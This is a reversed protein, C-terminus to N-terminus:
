RLLVFRSTLTSKEAGFTASLLALYVGNSAFEGSSLKGNWIMSDNFGTYSTGSSTYITNGTIDFVKLSILSAVSCNFTFSINGSDPNYPSPCPNFDSLVLTGAVKFTIYYSGGLASVNITHSGAVLVPITIAGTLNNYLLPTTEDLVATAAAPIAGSPDTISVVPTSSCYESQALVRGDFYFVIHDPPALYHVSASKKGINGAQDQAVIDLANNGSNLKIPAFFQKGKVPFSAVFVNNNMVSIRKASEDNLTGSIQMTAEDTLTIPIASLEILPASTDVILAIEPIVDSNGCLDRLIGTITYLGESLDTHPTFIVQSLEKRYTLTGEISVENRKIVIQCKDADIGSGSDSISLIVASIDKSYLKNFSDEIIIKPAVSDLNLAQRLVGTNGTIDTACIELVNEAKVSVPCKIIGTIKKSATDYSLEGEATAGNIRFSIETNEDLNDKRDTVIAEVAFLAGPRIWDKEKPKTLVIEPIDSEFVLSKTLVATNGATDTVEFTLINLGSTLSRLVEFTGTASIYKIGDFVLSSNRESIVTLFAEKSSTFGKSEKKCFVEISPATRDISLSYTENTAMTNGFIDAFGQTKITFSGDQLNHRLKSLATRKDIWSTESSLVFTADSYGEAEFRAPVTTDMDKSFKISAICETTNFVGDSRKNFVFATVEPTETNIELKQAPSEAMQFGDFAAAKYYFVGDKGGSNIVGENSSCYTSTIGAGIFYPNDSVHFVVSVEDGDPDLFPNFSATVKKTNTKIDDPTLFGNFVALRNTISLDANGELFISAGSSNSVVSQIKSMNVAPLNLRRPKTWTYGNNASFSLQTFEVGPALLTMIGLSSIDFYVGALNEYPLEISQFSSPSTGSKKSIILNHKNMAKDAAVAYISANFAACKIDSSDQVNIKQPTSWSAASDGSEAYIVSGNKNLAFFYVNNSDRAIEFKLLEASPRYIQIPNLISGTETVYFSYANGSTDSWVVIDATDGATTLIKLSKPAAPLICLARPASWTTGDNVSFSKYLKLGTTWYASLRSSETLLFPFLSEFSGASLLKQKENISSAFARKAFTIKGGSSTLSYQFGENQVYHGYKDQKSIAAFCSGSLFAIICITTFAISAKAHSLSKMILM